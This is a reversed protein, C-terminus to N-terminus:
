ASELGLLAPLARPPLTDFRFRGRRLSVQYEDATAVLLDTRGDVDFDAAIAFRAGAPTGLAVFPADLVVDPLASADARACPLSAAVVATTSARRAFRRILLAGSSRPRAPPTCRSARASAM